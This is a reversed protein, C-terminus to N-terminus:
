KVQMLTLMQFIPSTIITCTSHKFTGPTLPCVFALEQAKEGSLRGVVEEKGKWGREEIEVDIGKM